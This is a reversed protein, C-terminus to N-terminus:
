QTSVGALLTHLSRLGWRQHQPQSRPQGGLQALLTRGLGLSRRWCRPHLNRSPRQRHPRTQTRLHHPTCGVPVLAGWTQSAGRLTRCQYHRRVPLWVRQLNRYGLHTTHRPHPDLPHAAYTTHHPTHQYALPALASADGQTASCRLGLVPRATMRQMTRGRGQGEQVPPEWERLRTSSRAGLPHRHGHRLTCCGGQQPQVPRAGHPEQHLGRQHVQPETRGRRRWPATVRTQTHLSRPEGGLFFNSHASLSTHPLASFPLSPSRGVWSITLYQARPEPLVRRLGRVGPVRTRHM